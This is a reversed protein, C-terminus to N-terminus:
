ELQVQDVAAVAQSRGAGSAGHHLDVRAREGLSREHQLKRLFRVETQVDLAVALGVFERHEVGAAALEVATVQLVAPLKRQREQGTVVADLQLIAAALDVRAADREAIRAGVQTYRSRRAAGRM